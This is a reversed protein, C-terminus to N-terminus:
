RSEWKFWRIGLFSFVIAYIITALLAVTTQSNWSAPEMSTSLITKVTGFPSWHIASKLANGFLGFEGFVGLIIFGIYVLRSTSNVTDSNKVLGVILQGLGLYLGGGIFATIFTLTYGFPSLTIKDYNYGVIFVFLTLLAIMALQVILRSLMIFYTPIPTVRLRQFVGKDRDRSVSIAYGMIGIATLGINMSISLAFAGGLKDILGKWSVLIIVPLLLSMIVSRRNRWQTTFDARLLSLFADSFKPIKPEM